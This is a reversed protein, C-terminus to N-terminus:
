DAPRRPAVAFSIILATWGSAATDDVAAANSALM